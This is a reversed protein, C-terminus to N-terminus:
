DFGIADGLKFLGRLVIRSQDVPIPAVVQFVAPHHLQDLSDSASISTDMGDPDNNGNHSDTGFHRRLFQNREQYARIRRLQEPTFAVSDDCSFSCLNANEQLVDKLISCCGRPDTSDISVHLSRISPVKSLQKLELCDDRDMGELRLRALRVREPSQSLETLFGTWNRAFSSLSLTHIHSGITSGPQNGRAPDVPLLLMNALVRGTENSGFPNVVRVVRHAQQEVGFHLERLPSGIGGTGVREDNRNSVPETMFDRLVDTADMSFQCMCFSLKAMTGMSSDTGYRLGNVLASMAEATFKINALELLELLSASQIFQCLAAWYELRTTMGIYAQLKLRKLAPLRSKLTVLVSETWNPNNAHLTLSELTSPLAHFASVIAASHQAGSDVYCGFDVMLSKLSKMRVLLSLFSQAPANCDYEVEEINPNDGIATLFAESVVNHNMACPCSNEDFKLVHRRIDTDGHLQCHCDSRGRINVRRLVKSTRVYRVLPELFRLVAAADDKRNDVGLMRNLILSLATVQTNVLLAEGLCKSFGFPFAKKNYETLTSQEVFQNYRLQVCIAELELNSRRTNAEHVACQFQVFNPSSFWNDDDWEPYQSDRYDDREKLAATFAAEAAELALKTQAFEMAFKENNDNAVVVIRARKALPQDEMQM